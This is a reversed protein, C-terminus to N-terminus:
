SKGDSKRDNKQLKLAAQFLNDMIFIALAIVGAIEGTQILYYGAMKENNELLFHVTQYMGNGPVTPLIGAVLFLTVPTKFIRAFVHAMFAALLASVFSAGVAGYGMQICILYALGAMAGVFGSRLLYKKPTEILVSFSLVALFVGAVEVATRVAMAITM